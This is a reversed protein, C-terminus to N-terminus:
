VGEVMGEISKSFLSAKEIENKVCSAGTVSAMTLQLGPLAIEEQEIYGSSQFQTKILSIIPCTNQYLKMDALLKM